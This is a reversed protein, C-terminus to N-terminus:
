NVGCKVEYKTWSSKRTKQNGEEDPELLCACGCVIVGVICIYNCASM